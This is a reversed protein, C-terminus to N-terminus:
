LKHERTGSIRPDQAESAGSDDGTGGAGELFSPLPEVIGRYWCGKEQIIKKQEDYRSLAYRADKLAIPHCETSLVTRLSEALIGPWDPWMTESM